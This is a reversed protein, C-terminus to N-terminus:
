CLRGRGGRREEGIADDEIPFRLGETGIEDKNKGYGDTKDEADKKAARTSSQDSGASGEGDAEAGLLIDVVGAEKGHDQDRQSDARGGEHAHHGAM